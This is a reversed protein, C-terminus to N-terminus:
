SRIQSLFGSIDDDWTGDPLLLRSYLNHTYATYADIRMVKADIDLENAIRPLNSSINYAASEPMRSIIISEQGGEMLQATTSPTHKLIARTISQVSLEEGRLILCISALGIMNIYYKLQIIGERSLNTIVEQLDKQNLGLKKEYIGEELASLNIQWALYSIANAEISNPIRVNGRSKPSFERQLQNLKKQGNVAELIRYTNVKWEQASNDYLNYNINMASWRELSINQKLRRVREVASDPMVMVQLYSPKETITGLRAKWALHKHPWRHAGGIYFVTNLGIKRNQVHGRISTGYLIMAFRDIWKVKSLAAETDLIPLATLITSNPDIKSLHKLIRGRRNPVSSMLWTWAIEWPSQKLADTTPQMSVPLQGKDALNFLRVYEPARVGEILCHIHHFFLSNLLPASKYTTTIKLPDDSPIKFKVILAFFAMLEERINAPFSQPVLLNMTSRMTKGIELNPVNVGSILAAIESWKPPPAELIKNLIERPSKDYETFLESYIEWDTKMFLITSEYSSIKFASIFSLTESDIILLLQKKSNMIPFVVFVASRGTQTLLKIWGGSSKPYMENQHFLGKSIQKVTTLVNFSIKEERTVPIGQIEQKQEDRISFSLNRYYSNILDVPTNEVIVSLGEKTFKLIGEKTQKSPFYVIINIELPRAHM